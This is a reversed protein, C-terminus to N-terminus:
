LMLKIIKQALIKAMKENSEYTWGAIHPSLIVNESSVLYQTPEPYEKFSFNEFSVSEYELVDLCAGKIKGSKLNKVFDATNVIKGRSTNILYFDKKFHNILNDNVFNKTEDSLPVHMSLIDTEEFIKELSVQKVFPFKSKDITIYKDYALINVEFGSLKKAFSSGTNGFGIIGVTKGNLEVGRNEERLWIGKRVESDAKNLKNFLSLLMGIAHEGVADRNGEPSNICVIGKSAAAKVDINEMGSGARAIFKLNDATSLFEEDIKFRSRIVIGKFEHITKKIKELSWSTGDECFFGKEEVLKNFIPHITDILLIKL